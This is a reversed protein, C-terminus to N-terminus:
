PAAKTFDDLVTALLVITRRGVVDGHIHLEAIIWTGDVTEFANAVRTKFLVVLIM